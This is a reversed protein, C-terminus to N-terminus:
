GPTRIDLHPVLAHRSSGRAGSKALRRICKARLVANLTEMM